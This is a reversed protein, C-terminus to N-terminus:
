ATVFPANLRVVAYNLAAAFAVWLAYPVLLWVATVSSPAVVWMLLVISLWLFTVEWLAWDPRRAKFFLWSWLVNLLGNLVVAALLRRRAPSTAAGLWAKVAAAATLTYILTWVVGFWVDAPKWDPQKLADYWPGLETAWRGLSAVAIAAAAACLAAKLLPGRPAAPPATSPEASM